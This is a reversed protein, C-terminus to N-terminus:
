DNHEMAKQAAYNLDSVVEELRSIEAMLTTIDQKYQAYQSNARMENEVAWEFRREIRARVEPTLLTNSM